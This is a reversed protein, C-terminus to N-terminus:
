PLEHVMVDFIDYYDSCFTFTIFPNRFARITVQLAEELHVSTSQNLPACLSLEIGDDVTMMM